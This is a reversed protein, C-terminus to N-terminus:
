ADDVDDSNASPSQHYMEMNNKTPGRGTEETESSESTALPPGGGFRSSSFSSSSM